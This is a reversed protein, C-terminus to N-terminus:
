ILNRRIIDKTTSPFFNFKKCIKDINIAYSKMTHKKIVIRSNSLYYKKILEIVEKMHLPKSAALNFTSRIKKKFLNKELFFNIFKAIEYTDILNNFKKNYSYFNLYKNKKIKVIITSLWPRRFNKSLTLVGPLRLNIYNISGNFLLLEGCFKTLGLNDQNKPIHEETLNSGEIEGYISITSLNFIFKIKNDEAYKIVNKLAIINSNVLDVFKKKKSFNHAAICNIIIDVKPKKLLKKCFDHKIWILNKNKYIKGRKASRYTAYIKHNKKTMFNILDSGLEGNAGTILIKM